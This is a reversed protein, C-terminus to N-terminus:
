FKGTCSNTIRKEVLNIQQLRALYNSSDNRLGEKFLAVIVKTTQIFM